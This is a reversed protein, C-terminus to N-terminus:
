QQVEGTAKVTAKVAAELVGLTVTSEPRIAQQKPDLLLLGEQSRLLLLDGGTATGVITLKSQGLATLFVVGSSPERDALFTVVREGPVFEADGPIRLTKGDLTGGMQRVVVRARAAVKGKLAREVELTTHTYPRGDEGRVVKQTRVTALVVLDSREAQQTDDLHLAVTAAAPTALLAIGVLIPLVLTTLSRRSTM